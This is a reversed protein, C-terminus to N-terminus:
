VATDSVAEAVLTEYLRMAKDMNESLGSLTVYTRRETPYISYSCALSYFDNKIQAVTRDKTGLLSLYSAARALAKDAYTGYEYVYTLTFIDNTKNQSYM